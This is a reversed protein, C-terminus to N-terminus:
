NRNLWMIAKILFYAVGICYVVKDRQQRQINEFEISLVRRNLKSVQRRLLIVEESTSYQDGFPPTAERSFIFFDFILIGFSGIFYKVFVITINGTCIQILFFISNASISNVINTKRIRHVCIFVWLIKIEFKTMYYCDYADLNKFVSDYRTNLLDQQYFKRPKALSLTRKDEVSGVSNQDYDRHHNSDQSPSFQPEDSASPFHHEALSITRPPTSVRVHETEIPLISNDLIIERPASRSGTVFFHYYLEVVARKRWTVIAGILWKLWSATM